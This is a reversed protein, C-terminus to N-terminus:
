EDEGKIKLYEKKIHEILATIRESSLEEWGDVSASKLWKAEQNDPIKVTDFLHKIEDLQDKTALDIAESQKEIVDKGYKEAFADYSWEFATTDEFAEIRSKRVVANRGGGVKVINLCLDLEYELKDWCDFTSGIEVREKQANLGWESKEHCILIVSMDIRSLWNILSRMYAIAPKKSAGFADKDGLREAEMAIATNYLKTISDIVVTKYGHQETALAKVQDIVTEFDLAGQDVGLYAGGSDRLKDTYHNLAAGGESDIYYCNPFDLTTYTKGVGSKGYVVIKPKKPKATKPEVAKLKSRAM